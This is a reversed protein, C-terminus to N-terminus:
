CTRQRKSSQSNTDPKASRKSAPSNSENTGYAHCYDQFALWFANQVANASCRQAITAVEDQKMGKQIALMVCKIALVKEQHKEITEYKEFGRPEEQERNIGLAYNRAQLRLVALEERQYWSTQVEKPTLPTNPNEHYSTGEESFRVQRIRKRTMKGDSKDSASFQLKATTPKIPLCM